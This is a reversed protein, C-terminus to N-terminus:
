PSSLRLPIVLCLSQWVFRHERHKQRGINTNTCLNGTMRKGRVCPCVVSHKSHIPLTILCFLAYTLTPPWHACHHHRWPGPPRMKIAGRRVDSPTLWNPFVTSPFLFIHILPALPSQELLSSYSGERALRWVVQKTKMVRRGAAAADRWGCQMAVIVVHLFFAYPLGNWWKMEKICEDKGDCDSADTLQSWWWWYWTDVLLM